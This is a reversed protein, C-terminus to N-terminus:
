LQADTRPDPQGYQEMPNDVSEFFELQPEMLEADDIEATIEMKMEVM